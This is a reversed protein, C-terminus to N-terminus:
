RPEELPNKETTSMLTLIGSSTPPWRLDGKPVRRSCAGQECLRQMREHASSCVTQSGGGRDHEGYDSQFSTYKYTISTSLNGTQM